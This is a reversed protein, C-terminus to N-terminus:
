KKLRVHMGVEIKTEGIPEVVVLESSTDAVTAAGVVKPRKRGMVKGSKVDLVPDGSVFVDLSQGVTLGCDGNVNLYFVAKDDEEAAASIEAEWPYKALKQGLKAVGDKIALDAAEFLPSEKFEAWGFVKQDGKAFAALFNTKTTKSGTARVTELVLQTTPDVLKVDLVVKNRIQKQGGGLPGLSLGGASGSVNLDIATARVLFQPKLDGEQPPPPQITPDLRAPVDLVYWYKSSAMESKLMEVLGSSFGAPDSLILPEPGSAGGAVTTGGTGGSMSFGSGSGSSVSSCKIAFTEIYALQRLVPSTQSVPGPALVSVAFLTVLNM